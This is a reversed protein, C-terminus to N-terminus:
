KKAPPRRPCPMLDPNKRIHNHKMSFQELDRGGGGIASATTTMKKAKLAAMEEEM